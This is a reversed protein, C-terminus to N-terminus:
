SVTPGCKYQYNLNKAPKINIFWFKGFRYGKRYWNQFFYEKEIDFSTFFYNVYYSNSTYWILFFLLVQVLLKQFLCGRMYWFHQYLDGKMHM